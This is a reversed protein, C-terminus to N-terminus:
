QHKRIKDLADIQHFQSFFKRLLHNIQIINWTSHLNHIKRHIKMNKDGLKLTEQLRVLYSEQCSCGDEYIVCSPHLNRSNLKHMQKNKKTIWKICIDYKNDTFVDFKKVFRKSFEENKACYQIDVLVFKKPVHHQNRRSLMMFMQEYAKFPTTQSNRSSM